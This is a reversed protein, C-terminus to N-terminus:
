PGWLARLPRIHGALARQRAQSLRGVGFDNIKCTKRPEETLTNALARLCPVFMWEGWQFYIQDPPPSKSVRPGIKPTRATITLVMQFGKFFWNYENIWCESIMSFPRSITIVTKPNRNVKLSPLARKNKVIHQKQERTKCNTQQQSKNKTKKQIHKRTNEREQRKQYTQFTRNKHKPTNMIKTQTNQM